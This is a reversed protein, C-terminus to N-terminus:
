KIKYVKKQRAQLMRHEYKADDEDTWIKAEKRDIDDEDTWIKAEKRDIYGFAVNPTVTKIEGTKIIKIKIM